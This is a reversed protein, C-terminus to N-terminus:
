DEKRQTEPPPKKKMKQRMLEKIILFVLGKNGKQCCLYERIQKRGAENREQGKGVPPVSIKRIM